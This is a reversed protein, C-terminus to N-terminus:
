QALAEMRDALDVSIDEIVHAYRDMTVSISAHGLQASVAKV